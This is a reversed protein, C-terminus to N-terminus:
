EKKLTVNVDSRVEGIKVEVGASVFGARRVALEYKGPEMGSLQFEGRENTLAAVDRWSGTGSAIYVVTGSLPVGAEDRVVGTVSTSFEKM